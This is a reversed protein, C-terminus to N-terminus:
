LCRELSICLHIALVLLVLGTWQRGAGAATSRHEARGNYHYKVVEEPIMDSYDQMCHADRLLRSGSSRTEKAQFHLGSEQRHFALYQQPDFRADKSHMYAALNPYVTYLGFMDAFCIFWISWMSGTACSLEYNRYWSTILPDNRVYPAFSANAQQTHYWTQFTRWHSPLPAFGQTGVRRHFFLKHNPLVPMHVIAGEYLSYGAIDTRNGYRQHAAKLWRYACPSLDVDDELIIALEHSTERPRWSDIWQGHLGAHAQQIHVQVPGYSWEFSKAVAVSRESVRGSVSRDIWIDVMGRDGDVRLSSLSDLVQFVMM